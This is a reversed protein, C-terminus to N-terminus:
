NANHSAAPTSDPIPGLEAPSALTTHEKLEDIVSVLMNRIESLRKVPLASAPGAVSISAFPGEIGRPFALGYANFGPILYGENVAFGEAFTRKLMDRSAQVREADAGSDRLALFNRRIIARSETSPLELLLATGGVSSILPRRSGRFITLPRMDNPCARVACVFDDGSRFLLFAASGLQRALAELLPRAAFQLDNLRPLSLGLEFLM